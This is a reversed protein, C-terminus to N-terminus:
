GVRGPGVDRAAADAGDRHVAGAHRRRDHLGPWAHAHTQGIVGPDGGFDRMWVRHAIMMVRPAGARDDEPLITRGIAARVGLLQFYNGTVVEGIAM